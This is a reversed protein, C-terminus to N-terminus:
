RGKQPVNFGYLMKDKTMLVASKEGHVTVKIGKGIAIGLWFEVCGKEFIYETGAAQNIGYLDIDDYGKYIALAIAYAASCAFYDTGFEHIIEKLPYNGIEIIPTNDESAKERADVLHQRGEETYCADLVHIDFVKSVPRRCICHNIGWVETGNVPAGEWGDGVGVIAVRM